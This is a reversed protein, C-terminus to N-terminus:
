IRGACRQSSVGRSDVPTALGRADGAVIATVAGLIALKCRVSSEADGLVTHVTGFRGAFAATM